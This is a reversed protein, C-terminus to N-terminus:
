LKRSQVPSWRHRSLPRFALQSDLISGSLCVAIPNPHVQGSQYLYRSRRNHILELNSLMSGSNFFSVKVPQSVGEATDKTSAVESDREMADDLVPVITTAEKLLDKSVALPRALSRSDPTDMNVLRPLQRRGLSGLDAEQEQTLAVDQMAYRYGKGEKRPRLRMQVFAGDNILDLLWRPRPLPSARSSLPDRLPAEYGSTPLTVRLLHRTQNGPDLSVPPALSVISLKFPLDITDPPLTFPLINRGLVNQAVPLSVALTDIDCGSRLFAASLEIEAVLLDRKSRRVEEGLNVITSQGSRVSTHSDNHRLTPTLLGGEAQRSTPQLIISVSYKSNRNVQSIGIATEDQCLVAWPGSSSPEPTTMCMAPLRARCPSGEAKLRQEVSLIVRPLAANLLNNISMPLNGSYDVCAVYMCRTSPIAYQEHSYPDITELIWGELLVHAPSLNAPNYKAPDADLVLPDFSSSSAHLITSLASPPENLPSSPLVDAHRAIINATLVSRSRFPFTTYATVHSTSIGQGYSQILEPADFREDRRSISICASIEEATFGEIIRGARYVPFTDSVHSVLRKEIRLGDRETVAQWGNPDTSEGDRDGHMRMLQGLARVAADVPTDGPTPSPSPIAMPVIASRTSEAAYSYMKTLPSAIKSYRSNPTTPATMGSSFTNVDMQSQKKRLTGLAPPQDLPARTPKSRKQKKLLGVEADSLEELDVKIKHGNVQVSVKGTPPAVGRRVIIVIKEDRTTTSDHEITLWLGGGHPSLKTRKLVSIGIQPPDVIISYSNSWTEADCRIECEINSVLQSPMELSKTSASDGDGNLMKVAVPLPFATSTSSSSSRRTEAAQYEFRYTEKEVDYKSMLAKAGGLRTATPPAGHKIAFEGIGALTSMMVQPISSKNSWGRPDSQELLTVQTTNPSLSEISWGQLDIQTRIVNPDISPPIMPFLDTNDSSFGFIHVSSPSKYTTRLLISDRAAVPWAARSRFHWLDTLENVDELLTAEEHTKDWILRGGPSAITAFLDWIGVGVFVAEARYVILTRDISDLQHIAVGRSDLVPRWKAEPEQLLSTFYIYNRRVLSAIGREASPSREREGTRTVSKGDQSHVSRKTSITKLSVASTSATEQLVPRNERHQEMSQINVPIGNLRVNPTSSTATQEITVKVRVLEENADLAAHSFRLILRKPAKGDPVLSPARGVFSTWAASSSDDGSQTKVHIQVDWSETSSLGFEIYRRAGEEEPTSPNIIAYGVALTIRATDYDMAGISVDAGYGLLVPVKESGERVHDVLGVVSSPLHQPVGGGVAWAGKPNWSWFCTIRAKGVPVESTGGLQVCWALLSVHARVHPPAPRLYAPETKSRPLSTSIDIITHQDLLTKSITVADRPNSPWGLRYDTKTVRTQPDIIELIEAKEVM